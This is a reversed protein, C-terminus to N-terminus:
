YAVHGKRAESHWISDDFAVKASDDPFDPGALSNVWQMTESFEPDRRERVATRQSRSAVYRQDFRSKLQQMRHSFESKQRSSLRNLLPVYNSAPEKPPPIAKTFDLREGPAADILPPTAYIYHLLSQTDAGFKHVYHDLTGRVELPLDRELSNESAADAILSWRSFDDKGYNSPRKTEQIFSAAMATSILAHAALSWPGFSHFTWEIETFTAGNHHAAYDLDVLYAYKLLHIPGLERCQMEDSKAAVALAYRFIATTIQKNM